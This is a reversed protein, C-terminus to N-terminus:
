IKSVEAYWAEVDRKLQAVLEPYQDKLNTREGPDTELNSLHVPDPGPRQFDLKGNLVLKWQGQRVALQGNYEWFIQEHPSEQGEELMPLIDYGDVPNQPSPEGEALKLMTPFVDLMFGPKDCVQGPKIGNPYCLIAPERLGGEYLSYKHGRFIGASGGYYYDESGDLWNRQETSPGNDSSFFILTDDFKGAQKLAEIIAGVGDDMASIMAAMIRRDSPVGPYRDVYEKPAHMPWHPANYPVYLFFPTDGSQRIFQVAKETLLETLYRGNWWVEDRNHWLDHFPNIGNVEGWYFIHSYYDIAGAIFGFFEDFGHSNPHNEPQSGLHWKGFLATQYGQAKLATALTTESPPLGPIGSRKGRIIQTIGCRTPYRGTL